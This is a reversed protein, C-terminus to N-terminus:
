CLHTDTAVQTCYMGSSKYLGSLQTNEEPKIVVETELEFTGDPFPGKIELVDKEPFSYRDASLLEGDIKVSRLDLDEADLRLSASADVGDRRSMQVKGVVTTSGDNIRFTLDIDKAVYDTPKYDKRFKEVPAEVAAATAKLGALGRLAGITRRSVPRVWGLAPFRPLPPLALRSGGKLRMSTAAALNSRLAPLRAVSRGARGLMGASAPATSFAEAAGVLCAVAVFAGACRM